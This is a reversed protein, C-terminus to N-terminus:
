LKVFNTIFTIVLIRTKLRTNILLLIFRYIVRVTEMLINYLKIGDAVLHGFIHTLFIYESDHTSFFPPPLLITM